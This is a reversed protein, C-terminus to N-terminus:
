DEAEDDDEARVPLVAPLTIMGGPSFVTNAEILSRARGYLYSMVNAELIAKIEDDVLDDDFEAFSQGSLVLNISGAPMEDDKEAERGYCTCELGLICRCKKLSDEMDFRSEAGVSIETRREAEQSLAAAELFDYDAQLIKFGGYQIVSKQFINM